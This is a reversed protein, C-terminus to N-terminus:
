FTSIRLFVSINVNGPLKIVTLFHQRSEGLRFTTLELRAPTGFAGSCARKEPNAANKIEKEGPPRSQNVPLNKYAAHHIDALQVRITKAFKSLFILPKSIQNEM